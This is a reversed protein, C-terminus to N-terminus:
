WDDASSAVRVLRHARCTRGPAALLVDLDHARMRDDLVHALAHRGQLGAHIDQLSDHAAVVTIALAQAKDIHHVVNQAFVSSIGTDRKPCSVLGAPRVRNRYVITLRPKLLSHIDEFTHGPLPWREHHRRRGCKLGSPLPLRMGATVTDADRTLRNGPCWLYRLTVQRKHLDTLGIFAVSLGKPTCLTIPLCESGCGASRRSGVGGHPGLSISIATSYRCMSALLRRCSRVSCRPSRQDTRVANSVRTFSRPLSWLLTVFEPPMNIPLTLVTPALYGSGGATPARMAVSALRVNVGSRRASSPDTSACDFVIWARPVAKRKSREGHVSIGLSIGSVIASAANSTAPAGARTLTRVRGPMRTNITPAPFLPVSAAIAAASAPALSTMTVSMLSRLSARKDMRRRLANRVSTASAISAISNADRTPGDASRVTEHTSRGLTSSPQMRAVRVSPCM